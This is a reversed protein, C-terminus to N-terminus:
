WDWFGWGCAAPHQGYKEDDGGLMKQVFTALLGPLCHDELSNLQRHLQMSDGRGFNEGPLELGNKLIGM